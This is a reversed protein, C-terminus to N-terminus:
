LTNGKLDSCLQSGTSGISTFYFSNDVSFESGSLGKSMSIKLATNQCISIKLAKVHIDKVSGRKVDNSFLYMGLGTFVYLPVLLFLLM